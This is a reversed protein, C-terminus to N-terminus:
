LKFFTYLINFQKKLSYPLFTFIFKLDLPIFDQYYVSDANTQALAASCVLCFTDFGWFRLLSACIYNLWLVCSIIEKSVHFM